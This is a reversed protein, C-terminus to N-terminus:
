LTLYMNWLKSKITWWLHDWPTMGCLVTHFKTLSSYGTQLM